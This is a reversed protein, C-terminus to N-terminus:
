RGRLRRWQETEIGLWKILKEELIMILIVIAAFVVLGEIINM